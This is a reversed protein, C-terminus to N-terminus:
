LYTDDFVSRYCKMRITRLASEASERFNYLLLEGSLRKDPYNVERVGYSGNGFNRFDIRVGEQPDYGSRWELVYLGRPGDAIFYKCSGFRKVVSAPEAIANSMLLLGILVTRIWFKNNM